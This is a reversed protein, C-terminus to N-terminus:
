TESLLQKSLEEFEDANFNVGKGEKLRDITSDLRTFYEERTEKRLIGKSPEESIAITIELNRKRKLLTKIQSILNEDFENAKIRFVVDM